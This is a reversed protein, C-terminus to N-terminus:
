SRIKKQKKDDNETETVMEALADAQLRKRWLEAGLATLVRLASQHTLRSSYTERFIEFGERLCDIEPSYDPPLSLVDSVLDM